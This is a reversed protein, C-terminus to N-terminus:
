LIIEKLYKEIEKAKMQWTHGEVAACRGRHGMEKKLTEDKILRVIAEAVAQPNAADVSFGAGIREIFDGYGKVNSAVVPKGCALYEFLKMPSGPNKRIPKFFVACIDFANIYIPAEKFSVLGTFIVNNELGLEKTQKVLAQMIKGQGVIVLKTNPAEKLVLPISNILYDVGHWPYLGGVFGILNSDEDFNLKRRVSKKELPKFYETNVGSNLVAIKDFSISHKLHVYEKVADAIVLIKDSLKFHLKRILEIVYIIFGPINMLKLEESVIGNIYFILPCRLLKCCILPGCEIYIEFLFAADPKFRLFICILYFFSFIYYSLRRFVPLNIVPIYDINNFDEDAQLRSILPASIKVQHGLRQLSKAIEIVQRNGGGYGGMNEYCICIIRM